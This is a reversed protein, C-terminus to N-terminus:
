SGDGAGTDEDTDEDMRGMWRETDEESEMMFDYM